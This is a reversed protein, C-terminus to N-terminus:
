CMSLFNELHCRSHIILLKSYKRNYMKIDMKIINIKTKMKIKVCVVAYVVIM